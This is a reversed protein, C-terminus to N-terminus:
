PTSSPPLTGRLGEAEQTLIISPLRTPPTPTPDSPTWHPPGLCYESDQGVGEELPFRYQGPVFRTAKLTVLGPGSVRPAQSGDRLPSAVKVSHSESEM